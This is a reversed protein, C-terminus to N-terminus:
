RDGPPRLLVAILEARGRVNLKRFVSVMQKNVTPLSVGRAAAIAARGEGQVITLAAHAGDEVPGQAIAV